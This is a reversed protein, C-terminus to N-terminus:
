FRVSIGGRVSRRIQGLQTISEGNDTNTQFDLLNRADLVAQARLPLGFTPLDQTVQISLSPDYVALRGAFPDIAFVTAQPSFRFVTQVHTGTSWGAGLQVAATQYFGANFLEAPNTIGNPSLRQGRGFSYGASASWVSSLRRAYVVRFGRANGQENAVSLLSAGADGGFASLPTTLLGVGHGNNSDFFATAEISSGDNLIREVGIELRRSRGMVARGDVFAVPQAYPQKFIVDGGEFSAVSQQESEEGGTAYAAKVRTRANADFQVGLRPSLVAANGAGLFRSYDLGFVVVVGDRVIWEDIARVSMQGLVNKTESGSDSSIFLPLQAGGISVDLRHRDGVRVRAKTELRQPASGVGTQGAFILEFRDSAPLALAFNLGEYSSAFAHQSSAFYTEVAGQWRSRKAQDRAADNSESDQNEQAAEVAAIIPDNGENAQLISRRGQAARLRWKASDRDARQEVLTRGSGVPELNFRYSIEQSPNVTVSTFLVESFGDAIARLSYRGAPIRAIFSGDAASRTQKTIKAGERILQIVAGALPAGRNDRVTGTITALGRAGKGFGQPATVTWFLSVAVLAV